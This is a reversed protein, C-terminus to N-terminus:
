LCLWDWSEVIEILSGTREDEAEWIYDDMSNVIVKTGETISFFYVLETKHELFEM